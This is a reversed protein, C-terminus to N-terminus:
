AGITLGKLANQSFIFQNTVHSTQVWSSGFFQLNEKVQLPVHFPCTLNWLSDHM